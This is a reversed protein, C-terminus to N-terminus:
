SRQIRAGLVLRCSKDLPENQFPMAGRASLPARKSVPYSRTHHRLPLDRQNLEKPEYIRPISLRGARPTQLSRVTDHAGRIAALEFACPRDLLSAPMPPQVFSTM